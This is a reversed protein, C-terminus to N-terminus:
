RYSAKQIASSSLVSSNGNPFSSNGHSAAPPSHSGGSPVSKQLQLLLSPNKIKVLNSIEQLRAQMLSLRQKMVNYRYTIHQQTLAEPTRICVCYMLEVFKYEMNQIFDLRAESDNHLSFIALNIHPSKICANLMKTLISPYDSLNVMLQTLLLLQQILVKGQRKCAFSARHNTTM